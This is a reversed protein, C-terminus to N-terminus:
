TVFHNQTKRTWLNECSSNLLFPNPKLYFARDFKQLNKSTEAFVGVTMKQTFKQSSFPLPTFSLPTVSLSKIVVKGLQSASQEEALGIMDKVKIERGCCPSSPSGLGLYM